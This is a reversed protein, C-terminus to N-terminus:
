ILGRKAKLTYSCIMTRTNIEIRAILYRAANLSFRSSTVTVVDGLKIVEIGAPLCDNTLRSAYLTTSSAYYSTTSANAYVCVGTPIVGTIAGSSSEYIPVNLRLVDIIDNHEAAIITLQAAADTANDVLSDVILDQAQPWFVSSTATRVSLYAAAYLDKNDATVVGALNAHPQQFNNKHYNVTVSNAPLLTAVFDLSFYPIEDSKITVSGPDVFKAVPTAVSDINFRDFILSGTADFYYFNNTAASIAAIVQAYSMSETIYIGAEAAQTALFTVSAIGAETCLEDIIDDIRVNTTACDVTLDYVPSGWIRFTGDAVCTCYKGVGPSSHALLLATTAFDDHFTLAEGGDRIAYIANLAAYNGDRDFNLGYLDTASDIMVPAVNFVTGFVRPKLKNIVADGGSAFVSVQVPLNLLSYDSSALIDVYNYRVVVDNIVGSYIPYYDGGARSMKVVVPYGTFSYDRLYDLDGNNQLRISIADTGSDVGRSYVIGDFIYPAFYIPAGTDMRVTGDNSFYHTKSSSDAYKISDLQVTLSIDNTNM